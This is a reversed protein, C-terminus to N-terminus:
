ATASTRGEPAFPDGFNQPRKIEPRENESQETGRDCILVTFPGAETYEYRREVIQPYRSEPSDEGAADLNIERGAIKTILDGIKYETHWGPLRFEADVEAHHNKDRLEEAYTEIDTTDDQEAAANSGANLVSAYTGSEARQRYVFKDGVDVLLTYTQRNAAFTEREAVGEIRKDGRVTGTIRVRASTGADVLDAPPKDGDFLIGIQDPLLKTPWDEPVPEWTSGADTSYEVFIPRREKSGSGGGYTLPEYINRRHPIYRTFLGSLDPVDFSLAGFSRAEDIDGAENAVWQRWSLERGVYDSATDTKDLDDATKSDDAAPWGPMLPLTVEYEEYDGLVRVKNFSDGIGRNVAYQNVNTEDLNIAEGPAQFLLEKEDGVGQEFVTIKPQSSGTDYDVYWNFGFPILLRDLCKPLYWGLPLNVDRLLPASALVALETDTPNDIYPELQNLLECVALVASRVTWEGVTLDHYAAGTSTTASEPHIWWRSTEGTRTDSSMNTRTVGDVTPNFPIDAEVIVEDDSIPDYVPYGEVPNGFHYQRLQSTAQLTETGQSVSEAESTYDGWHIRTQDTDPFLVEIVRRFSSPQDRDQMPASLVWVHEAYDLRIGGASQVVRVARLEEQEDGEAPTEGTDPGIRTIWPPYVFALDGDTNLIDTTPM